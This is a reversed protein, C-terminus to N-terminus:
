GVKQAVYPALLSRVSDDILSNSFYEIQMQDLRALRVNLAPTAQANRILAACAHKVADSIAALGATYTIELENFPLRLGGTLSVEGRISDFDLGAASVTAWQGPLGFVNAMEIMLEQQPDGALPLDDGRRPQAYRGRVAVIPSTAPAIATLPLYTLRVTSSEPMLRLRETYQAPALTPRRCHADILASVAGVLAPPTALDVGYGEFESASLYVM